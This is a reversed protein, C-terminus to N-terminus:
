GARGAVLDSLLSILLDLEADTNYYHVSARVVDGVGRRGLDLRASAARAASTNVRARRLQAVVDDADRGAVDFTVIGCRREGTDRVVVGPVTVLQERLRAALAGVRAENDDKGWGLSYDVAACFGLRAAVGAEWSEF